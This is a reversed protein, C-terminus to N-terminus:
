AWPPVLHLQNWSAGSIDRRISSAAPTVAEALTISTPPPADGRAPASSSRPKRSTVTSSMEAAAISCALCRSPGRAPSTCQSVASM